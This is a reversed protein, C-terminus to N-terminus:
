HSGNTRRTRRPYLQPALFTKAWASRGAAHASWVIVVFGTVAVAIGLASTGWLGVAILACAFLTGLAGLIGPRATPRALSGPRRAPGTMEFDHEIESLIRLDHESLTM